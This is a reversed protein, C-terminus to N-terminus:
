ADQPADAAYRVIPNSVAALVRELDLTAIEITRTPPGPSFIFRETGFISEDVILGISPDHGFPVACGPECGTHATLEEDSAVSVHTGLLRKCAKSDFRKGQLTVYMFWRGDRGHLFLNKSETGTLNFRERVQAATEYDYVPEHEVEQYKVGAGRLLDRVRDALETVTM